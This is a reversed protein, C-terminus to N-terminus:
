RVVNGSGLAGLLLAIDEFIGHLLLQLVQMLLPITCIIAWIGVLIKVPIGLIFVNMQPVARAVVGLAIDLLFLVGAVPLALRLAFILIQSFLHSLDYWLQQSFMITGPPYFYFSDVLVQLLYHHGDVLLFLVLAILYYINGLLPAQAGSQPDLVNIMGFGMQIDIVQGAVQISYFLLAAVLGLVLGLLLEQIILLSFSFIDPVAVTAHGIILPLVVLSFFLSFFVRIQVPITRSSWFPAVALLASIRVLVLLYIQIGQQLQFLLLQSM